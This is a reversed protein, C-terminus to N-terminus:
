GAQVVVMANKSGRGGFCDGRRLAKWILRKGSVLVGEWEAVKGVVRVKKLM